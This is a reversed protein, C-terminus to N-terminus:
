TDVPKIVYKVANAKGAKLNNLATSLGSLGGPVVEQPHGSLWGEQMARGILRSFVFGFDRGNGEAVYRVGQKPDLPPPGTHVIGVFTLSTRISEPISTYNSELLVLTIHGIPDLAKSLAHFTNKESIADFAHFASGADAAKLAQQIGFVVADIGDRYDIVADGQSPDLLSEVYDKSKGAVAIIPHINSRRALKIAFSGIASSGGYILLPIKEKAPEWPLPLKLNHYLAVAATLAALPVTSAEEFSIKEPIHFTTSAPAIAFEAFAGGGVRMQHFAAVRDGPRFEYVEEGVREVFGAIDDGSNITVGSFHPYKWDKPNCGACVVKILVEEPGPQPVASDVIQVSTDPSVHAEKM